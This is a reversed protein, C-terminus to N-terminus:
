GYNFTKGEKFLIHIMGCRMVCVNGCCSATIAVAQEIGAGYKGSKLLIGIRQMRLRSKM